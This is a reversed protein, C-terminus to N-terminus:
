RHSPRGGSGRVVGAIVPHTTFLQQALQHVLAPTVAEIAAREQHREPLGDGFLWADVMEALVQGGSQQAIAHTGVLYRQARTVEELSPPAEAFRAL